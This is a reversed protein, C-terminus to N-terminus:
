ASSGARAIMRGYVDQYEDSMRSLGFELGRARISESSRSRATAAAKVLADALGQASNPQVVFGSGDAIARCEGVDTVVPVLGCLLAEVLSVPFSETLSSLCFIDASHFAELPSDLEGILVVNDQAGHLEILSRLETNTPGLGEGVLLLHMGPVKTLARGFADILTPQDKNRHYRAVHVVVTANQPFGFRQRSQTRAASSAPVMTSEDVGVHVIVGKRKSYGIREHMVRATGAVYVVAGSLRSALSCGLAIARTAWPLGADFPNTHHIAILVRRRNRAFLFALLASHYMWAHIIDAHSARIATRFRMLTRMKDPISGGLEFEQVPVGAARVAAMQRGGDLLTFIEINSQSEKSQAVALSTLLREAGSLCLTPVIHLVKM